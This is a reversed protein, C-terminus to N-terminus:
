ELNVLSSLNELTTIQNDYLELEKLTTLTDLNEIKKILNWRLYLREVCTLPELNDIRRIRQHNLELEQIVGIVLDCKTVGETDPDILVIEGDKEEGDGCNGIEATEGISINTDISATKAVKKDGSNEPKDKDAM